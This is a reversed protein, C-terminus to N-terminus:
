FMGDLNRRGDIVRIIEVAEFAISIASLSPQSSPEARPSIV